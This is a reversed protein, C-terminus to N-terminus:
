SIETEFQICVGTKPSETRPGGGGVPMIQIEM